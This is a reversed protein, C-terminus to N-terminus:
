AKAGLWQKKLLQAQPSMRDFHSLTLTSISSNCWDEILADPQRFLIRRDDRMFSDRIMWGLLVPLSSPVQPLGAVFLQEVTGGRHYGYSCAISRGSISLLGIEVAGLDVAAPHADKILALEQETQPTPEGVAELLQEVIEVLDWRRNTDGKSSGGPRWRYFSVPGYQSLDKEANALTERFHGTRSELFWDWSEDLQVASHDKVQCEQRLKSAELAARTREGAMGTDEISALEIANWDRNKKTACRLASTLAAGPNEGLPGFSTGWDDLPYKLVGAVGLRTRVSQQVLPVIGIPKGGDSVVMVRPKQGEGFVRLYSRLWDWSQFFSADPSEDWLRQWTTRVCALDDISSLETVTPM